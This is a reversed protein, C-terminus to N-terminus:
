RTMKKVFVVVFLALIFSGCFAELAAILRSFETPVINGYGLTTFTIVSFYLCDLFIYINNLFGYESHFVLIDGNHNLGSLFYAVACVLILGTSFSVVRLPKEGYGCFVDVAKSILRPLSWLPKQLRRMRMERLFFLGATDPLGQRENELRLKRYIEEAQQYLDQRQGSSQQADLQEAQQEQLLAKGWQLYELKADQLNVGLLNCRSINARHLNAASLNAKMLSSGQLQLGFLHAQSLDAHYFDCDHMIFGNKNGKNVLNIASLQTHRLSFGHMAEGNLARDELRQIIDDADKIHESDHWYCLDGYVAADKCSYGSKSQYCCTKDPMTSKDGLM